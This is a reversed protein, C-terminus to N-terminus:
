SRSNVRASRSFEHSVLVPHIAKILLGANKAKMYFSAQSGDLAVEDGDLEGANAARAAADLEDELQHLRTLDRSGYTVVVVVESGDIPMAAWGPVTDGALLLFLVGQILLIRKMLDTVRAAVQNEFM